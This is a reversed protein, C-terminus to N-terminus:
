RSSVGSAADGVSPEMAFERGGPKAIPQFQRYYAAGGAIPAPFIIM